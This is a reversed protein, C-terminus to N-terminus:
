RKLELQSDLLLQYITMKKLNRKSGMSAEYAANVPTTPSLDNSPLVPVLDEVHEQAKKKKKKESGSSM